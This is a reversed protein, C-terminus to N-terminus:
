TYAPTKGPHLKKWKELLAAHDEKHESDPVPAGVSCVTFCESVEHAGVCECCKQPDIVYHTDGESIAGNPCESECLGCAICKNGDIKYAV